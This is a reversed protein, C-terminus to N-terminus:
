FSHHSTCVDTFRGHFTLEVTRKEVDLRVKGFAGGKNEWGSQEDELFDYSLTEIGDRLSCESILAEPSRSSAQHLSVSTAPMPVPEGNRVVTVMEIQGSDGEGDFEVLVETIKAAALADFITGKNGAELEKRIQHHREYEQMFTEANSV